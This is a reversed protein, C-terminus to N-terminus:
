INTSYITYSLLINRNCTVRFRISLFPDYRSSAAYAIMNKYCMDMQIATAVDRQHYVNNKRHIRGPSLMRRCLIKSITKSRPDVNKSTSSLLAAKVDYTHVNLIERRFRPFVKVISSSLGGRGFRGM